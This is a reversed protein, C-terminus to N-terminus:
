EVIPELLRANNVWIEITKAPPARRVLNKERNVHKLTQHLYRPNKSSLEKVTNVGASELLVAYKTGVGRVRSLDGRYIWKLLTPYSVGVENALFRRGRETAGVRLLDNVTYIGSNRLLGSCITGIGEISEIDQDTRGPRRNKVNRISIKRDSHWTPEKIALAEFSHSRESVPPVTLAPPIVNVREDVITSEIPPVVLTPAVPMPPLPKSQRAFRSLSFVCAVITVWFFGNTVGNLISAVSIGWLSLQSPPIKLYEYLLQAPPFSPVLLTLGVLVVFGIALVTTVSM